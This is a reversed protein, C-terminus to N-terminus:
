KMYSVILTHTSGVWGFLMLGDDIGFIHHKLRTVCRLAVVISTPILFFIALVFLVRGVGTPEVSTINADIAM